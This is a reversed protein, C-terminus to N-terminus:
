TPLIGDQVQNVRNLKHEFLSECVFVLEQDPLINVTGSPSRDAEIVRNPAETCSRNLKTRFFLLRNISRDFPSVVNSVILYIKHSIFDPLVVQENKLEQVGEMPLMKAARQGFMNRVLVKLSSSVESFLELSLKNLEPTPTHVACPCSLDNSCLANRSEVNTFNSVLSARPSIFEVPLLVIHFSSFRKLMATVASCLNTLQMAWATANFFTRPLIPLEKATIAIPLRALQPSKVFFLVKFARLM